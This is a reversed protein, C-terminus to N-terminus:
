AADNLLRQYSGHRAPTYPTRDQWCRWIIHAWSRALIREAHPHTKGASRLQRYRSEAWTNGRWSDGAFDCLADRLKKDSSFRFTVARHRGSART